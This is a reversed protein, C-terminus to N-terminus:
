AAAIALAHARANERLLDLHISKLLSALQAQPSESGASAAEGLSSLMAWTVEQPGAVRRGAAVERWIALARLLPRHAVRSLGAASFLATLAGDRGSALLSHVRAKAQGSLSVLTAGLFDIKGHAAMRIVFSATMEGSLRLHEVLAAHEDPPTGDILTLSAKICAERAIREARKPGMLALVLPAVSLAEGVKRLLLHRTEAPLHLHALLAERVDCRDGFREAIRRFSLIAIEAGGNEVLARCANAGGVEAIAAALAMSVRPRSAILKQAAESGTAVLDVLDADTLLPSRVLIPGAVEPQDAALAAVVQAPARASLSLVEALAARVKASPDDLLLTLAAEAACRDDFELDHGVYARALAAAAAARQAVNASEIWRLFHEVIM